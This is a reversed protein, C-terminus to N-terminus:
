GLRVVIACLRRSDGAIKGDGAVTSGFAGSALLMFRSSGKASGGSDFLLSASSGPEAVGCDMTVAGSDDPGFASRNTM